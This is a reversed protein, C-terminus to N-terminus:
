SGPKFIMLVLIVLLSTVTVTHLWVARRDRVGARLEQAPADGADALRQALESVKAYQRGARDGTLGSVLWLVLSAAIWTDWLEYGDVYIALWVGFVLAAASGVVVLRNAPQAVRFLTAIESPRDVRWMALMLVTFVVVAAVMAFASLVHLTLLTDYWNM